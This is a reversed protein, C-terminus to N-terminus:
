IRSKLETRQKESLQKLIMRAISDVDIPVTVTKKRFGAKIMGANPSLDGALVEAHIEPSEKSLKRLAYTSTTGATVTSISRNSPNGSKKQYQNSGTPNGRNGTTAHTYLNEARENGAILAELTDLDTGIGSPYDTEVFEKFDKPQVEKGLANKWHTWEDSEMVRIFVEPVLKKSGARHIFTALLHIDDERAKLPDPSVAM